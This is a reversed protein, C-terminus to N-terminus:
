STVLSSTCLMTRFILSSLHRPASSIRFQKKFAILFSNILASCAKIVATM